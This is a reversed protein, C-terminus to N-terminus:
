RHHRPLRPPRGGGRLRDPRGTGDAAVPATVQEMVEEVSAGDHLAFLVDATLQPVCEAFELLQEETTIKGITSLLPRGM